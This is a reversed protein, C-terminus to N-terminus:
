KIALYKEILLKLKDFDIPKSVYDSAGAQAAEDRISDLDHASVIIIPILACEPDERLKGTAAIGDIGPLTIDMLILDPHCERSRIIAQEGDEAELIQYGHLKLMLKLATRNDYSDEAILITKPEKPM